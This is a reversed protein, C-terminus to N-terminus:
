RDSGISFSGGSFPKTGGDFLAFFFEFYLFDRRPWPAFFGDMRPHRPHIQVADDPDTLGVFSFQARELRLDEFSNESM